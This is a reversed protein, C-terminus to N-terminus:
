RLRRRDGAAVRRAVSVIWRWRLAAHVPVLFLTLTATSSHMGRWFENGAPHLGLAPLAAVSILVGSAICLTMATLLVLNVLWVLRERGRRTFLRRTTRVVWDGHLALHVLLALALALGWWEHLVLGTFGVSYAVTFGILISADLVLDLVARTPVTPGRLAPGSRRPRTVDLM